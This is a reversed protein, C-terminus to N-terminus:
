PQATREGLRSRPDPMDGPEGVVQLGLAPPELCCTEVGEVAPPGTRNRRHPEVAPRLEAVGDLYKLPAVFQEPEVLLHAGGHLSRRKEDEGETSDGPFSHGSLFNSVSM